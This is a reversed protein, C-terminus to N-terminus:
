RRERSAQLLRHRQALHEQSALVVTKTTERAKGGSVRGEGPHDNNRKDNTKGPVVSGGKYHGVKCCNHCFIIDLDSESEAPMAVGRGAIGLREPISPAHHDPYEDCPFEHRRYTTLKIERYTVTRHRTGECRDAQQALTEGEHHLQGPKKDPGMATGAQLARINRRHDQPVNGVTAQDSDARRYPYPTRLISSNGGPSSCSQGDRFVLDHITGARRPRFRSLATSPDGLYHRAVRHSWNHLLSFERTLGTRLRM